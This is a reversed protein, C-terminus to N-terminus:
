APQLSSRQSLLMGALMLGCGVLERGGMSEHLFFYGGIVAFVTELSLLISAHAPHAHKQGVMQLTYAVGSSMIGGYLISLRAEWIGDWTVPELIIATFMSLVGCTIGQALSLRPVNIDRSFRDILLIHFAWFLAGILELLDGAGIHLGEQICLLYLGAVALACGLWTNRSIRHGIFLGLLPVLVMYLCTVFAAKGASTYLLGVQQLSVAIFLVIGTILGARIPGFRWRNPTAKTAVPPSLKGMYLIVPILSFGGLIFRTGTFTFPGVHDMGRRQAVFAFGWIAAALLLYFNAKWARLAHQEHGPIHKSM